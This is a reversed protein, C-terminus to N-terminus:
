KFENKREREKKFMFLFVLLICFTVLGYIALKNKNLQEKDIERKIDKSILPTLIITKVEESTIDQIEKSSIHAIDVESDSSIINEIIEDQLITEETEEPEEEQNSVCALSQNKIKNLTIEGIGSVNILDDVSGFPRGDIIAQAKVPGIGDLKDLEELSASNINIQGEECLAYINSILIIFLLLLVKKM